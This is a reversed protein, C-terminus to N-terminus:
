KGLVRWLEKRNAMSQPDSGLYYPTTARYSMDEGGGTTVAKYGGPTAAGAAPIGFSPVQQMYLPLVTGAAPSAAPTTPAATVGGVNGAAAAYRGGGQGGAAGGGLKDAYQLYMKQQDLNYNMQNWYNQMERDAESNYYNLGFARDTQFDGVQDRYMGYDFARDAQYDGVQDRYVGYNFARDDKWDQMADRYRTYEFSRDDKWDTVTDRYRGYDTNDLTMNMNMNNRMEDGEYAYREFARQELAPIMNNLQQIYNQYAQFGASNGWSSGYGGSLAAAQGMADQMARQGSVMYQNKYQQFLPDKNVDYTFAPRNMIQDYLAKIQDAYKSQFPGPRNALVSELVSQAQMVAGSMPFGGWEGVTDGIGAYSPAAGPANALVGQLYSKGNAPTGGTQALGTTGNGTGTGSGGTSKGTSQKYLSVSGAGPTGAAGTRQALAAAQQQALAQRAAAQQVAAANGAAQAGAGLVIRNEYTAM